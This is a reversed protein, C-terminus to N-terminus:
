EQPVVKILLGKQIVDNTATGEGTCKIIVTASLSVTPVSYTTSSIILANSSIISAISQEAATGTRTVTATIEWSGDNAAVAGTDYLTASGFKLKITKNNANAAFTGWAKIEVNYGDKALVNPQMTYTILNDEGGNINGVPTTNSALQYVARKANAIITSINAFRNELTDVMAGMKNQDYETGFQPLRLDGM